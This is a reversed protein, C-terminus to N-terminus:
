RRRAAAMAARAARKASLATDVVLDGRRGYRARLHDALERNRGRSPPPPTPPLRLSLGARRDAAALRAVEAGLSAWTPDPGDLITGPAPPVSREVDAVHEVVEIGAAGDVGLQLGDVPDLVHVRVSGPRRLAAAWAAAVARHEPSRAGPRQVMGPTLVLELRAAGRAVWAVAVAGPVGRLPLARDAASPRGDVTLVHAGAGIHEAALRATLRSAPSPEPPHPGVVVVTPRGGRRNM